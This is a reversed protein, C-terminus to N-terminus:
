KFWRFFWNRKIAVAKHPCLEQCCYCRICKNLDIHPKGWEIQIAYPPCYRACDGCGVCTDHMISPHPQLYLKLFQAIPNNSELVRILFDVESTDPLKFDPVYLDHFNHGLIDMDELSSSCLGREKARQITCVKETPIGVLAASVVDLAFPSPSVLLAGIHRIDGASPGNGEMGVIGDMVSLVPKVYTCIDVLMDSFEKLQKMRLHYEAKTMGPIVGFLNKVAGTFLTLGHTKLKAVSIVADVEKLIKVMTMKKAVKGEPHSIEVIDTDYNLLAGTRHCVEEMGCTRYIGRLIRENYLGGPSDGIIPIAGIFQIARVLAEVVAPHSTVGEEPRRRSLLNCKVLVKMGPKIYKGIGGLIELSQGMAEEVKKYDYDNCGVLAVPGFKVIYGGFM